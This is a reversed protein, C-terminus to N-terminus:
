TVELLEIWPAKKMNDAVFDRQAEVAQEWTGDLMAEYASALERGDQVLIGLSNFTEKWDDPLWFTRPIFAVVAANAAEAWRLTMFGTRGYSPKHLHITATAEYLNDIVARQSLRGRFNVNPMDKKVKDPGPRDPGPELWNGFVTVSAVESASGFFDVAEAYREYVNGIYIFDKLTLFPYRYDIPVGRTFPNPFHLTRFGERPNLEPATLIVNGKILAMDKESIMHDQDHVVITKKGMWKDLIEMQQLYLAERDPYAPMSWRWNIFIIDCDAPGGGQVFVPPKENVLWTVKHGLSQYLLLLEKTWTTNGASSADKDSVLGPAWSFWGINM